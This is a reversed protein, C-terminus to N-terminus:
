WKKSLNLGYTGDDAIPQIDFGKYTTTFYFSSIVGIAAGALVDAIDHNDSKIRSYGVFSAGLYALAGYKIGYRKHIFAAGQFAASTHGSPFSRDLGNPRKKDITLKLIHTTAFTTAFSKYFQNRGESDDLYFTAGYAVSPILIQLADGFKEIGESAIVRNIPLLCIAILIMRCLIYNQM